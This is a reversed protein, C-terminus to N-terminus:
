IRRAKIKRLDRSSYQPGFYPLAMDLCEGDKALVSRKRFLEKTEM